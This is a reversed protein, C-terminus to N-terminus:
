KDFFEKNQMYYLQTRSAEPNRVDAKLVKEIRRQVIGQKINGTLSSM